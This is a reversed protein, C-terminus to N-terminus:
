VKHNDILHDKVYCIFIRDEIENGSYYYKKLIKYFEEYVIYEPPITISCLKNGDTDFSYKSVRYVANCYANGFISHAYIMNEIDCWEFNLQMEKFLKTLQIPDSHDFCSEWDIKTDSDLLNNRYDSKMKSEFIKRAFKRKEHETYKNGRKWGSYKAFYEIPMNFPVTNYSLTAKIGNITFYNNLLKFKGFLTISGIIFNGTKRVNSLVNVATDIVSNYDHLKLIAYTDRSMDLVFTDDIVMRIEENAINNFSVFVSHNCKELDLLLAM